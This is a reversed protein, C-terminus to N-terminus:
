IIIFSSSSPSAVLATPELSPFSSRKCFCKQIIIFPFSISGTHTCQRTCVRYRRRRCTFFLFYMGLSARCLLFWTGSTYRRGRLTNTYTVSTHTETGRRRKSFPPLFQLPCASQNCKFINMWLAGLLGFPYISESLSSSWTM